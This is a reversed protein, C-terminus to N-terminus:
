GCGGSHEETFEFNDPAGAPLSIAESWKLDIGSEPYSTYLALTYDGAAIGPLDFTYDFLCMCPAAIFGDMAAEVIAIVGDQVTFSVVAMFACDECTHEHEVALTGAGDWALRLAETYANDEAKSQPLCGSDTMNEVSQGGDDDDDDDVVQDDNGDDGDNDNCAAILTGIMLTLTALWVIWSRKM